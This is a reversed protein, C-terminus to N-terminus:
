YGTSLGACLNICQGTLGKAEESVLYKALAGVEVPKIFRKQPIMELNECLSFDGDECAKQTLETEVWGPNITNVTIGDSALELALSKTLGLLASKTMSYLSANAEGVSGSISGINIIRGWNNSKMFPVSLKILKYPIEINLKLLGQIQEDTTNEVPSYIYDGANNVLVDIWGYKKAIASILEECAGETASDFVFYDKAGTKAQTQKLKEENRGTLIVNYGEIALVEAIAAGIGKSSGTILINRDKNM